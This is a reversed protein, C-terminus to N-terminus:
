TKAALLEDYLATTSDLQANASFKEEVTKRGHKGFEAAASRNNILFLIHEALKADDDSAILFGSKGATIAESAGGVNTAIVPKAAAMYELISNSFGEATSTLVCIDSAAALAPINGCRGIFHVNESIGLDFAQRQLEALLEGEGAIIFQAAPVSGLVMAAARLLMPINKVAHRLNAVLTVLPSNEEVGLTQRLNPEKAVNADFIGIDLGNYILKLKAPSLRLASLYNEVALSNVVVADARGFALKEVLMQARSRMGGTERKSAIKVRVGALQAAAIGFVNTYFDHTHVIDAGATNLFRAAKRLQRVFNANYFSSLPFEPIEGIDLRSADDRLVGQANLTALSVNFRGDDALRRTLALAQRESGGENFSGIFQVVRYKM